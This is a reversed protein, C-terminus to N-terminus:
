NPNIREVPGKLDLKYEFRRFKEEDESIEPDDEPYASAATMPTDKSDVPPLFKDTMKQIIGKLEESDAGEVLKDKLDAIYRKIRESQSQSAAIAEDREDKVKKTSETESGVLYEFSELIRKLLKYVFSSSFGGLLAITPQTLVGVGIQSLYEQGQGANPNFPILIALIMGSVIGLTFRIWYSSMYKPHFTNTTTYKQAEYMEKICAGLGAAAMYFTMNALFPLGWLKKIEEASSTFSVAKLSALILLLLLCIVAAAWLQRIFSIDSLFKFPSKIKRQQEMYRLSEPTAPVVIKVLQDHADVLQDLQLLDSENAQISTGNAEMDQFAQVITVISPVVSKGSSFAHELMCVCDALLHSQINSTTENTTSM